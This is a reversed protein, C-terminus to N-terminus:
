EKVAGATMGELFYKSLFMYVIIIPLSMLNLAACYEGFLTADSSDFELVKLPLTQVSTNGMVTIMPWFFESWASQFAMVAVLALMPKLLPLVIHWFIRLTNAGDIVACEFINKSISDFYTRSLLIGLGPFMVICPIILVLYSNMMGMKSYMLFLPVYTLEGTIFMTGMAIGIIIKYGKFKFFGIAYAALASFLVNCVVSITTIFISNVYARM